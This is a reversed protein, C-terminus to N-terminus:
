TYLGDDDADNDGKKDKNKNSNNRNNNNNNNNNNNINNNDDEDDDENDNDDISTIKVSDIKNIVKRNELGLPLTFNENLICVSRKSRALHSVVAMDKVIDGLPFSKAIMPSSRKTHEEEEEEEEKEEEKLKYKLKYTREKNKTQKRKNINNTGPNINM